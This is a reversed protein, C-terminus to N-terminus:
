CDARLNVVLSSSRGPEPVAMGALAEAETENPIVDDANGAATLDLPQAPAPNLITRLVDAAADVDAPSLQDNSDKVM